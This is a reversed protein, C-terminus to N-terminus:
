NHGSAKFHQGFDLLDGLRTVSAVYRVKDVKDRFLTLMFIPAGFITVFFNLELNAEFLIVVVVPHPRNLCSSLMQRPVCRFAM